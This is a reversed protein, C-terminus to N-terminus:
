LGTHALLWIYCVVYAVWQCIRAEIDLVCRGVMRRGSSSSKFCTCAHWHLLTSYEYISSYSNDPLRNDSWCSVVFLAWDFYRAHWTTIGNNLTSTEFSRLIKIEKSMVIVKSNNNINIDGVHWRLIVHSLSQKCFPIKQM